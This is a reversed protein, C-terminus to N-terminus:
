KWKSGEYPFVFRDLIACNAIQSFIKCRRFKKEKKDFPWAEEMSSEMSLKRNPSPKQIFVDAIKNTTNSQQTFAFRLM